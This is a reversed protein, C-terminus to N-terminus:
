KSLEKIETMQIKKELEAIKKNSKDINWGFLCIIVCLMILFFTVDTRLDHVKEEITMEKPEPNM